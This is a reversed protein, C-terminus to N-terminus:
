DFKKEFPLKSIYYYHDLSKTCFNLNKLCPCGKFHYHFKVLDVLFNCYYYWLNLSYHFCYLKFIVIIFYCYCDLYFTNLYFNFHLSLCTVMRLNLHPLSFLNKSCFFYEEYWLVVRPFSKCFIHSHRLFNNHLKLHFIIKYFSPNNSSHNM